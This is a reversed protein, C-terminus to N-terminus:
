AVWTWALRAIGVWAALGLVVAPALWWGSALARRGGTEGAGRPGNALAEMGTALGPTEASRLPPVAQLNGRM